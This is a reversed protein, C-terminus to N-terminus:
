GHGREYDPPALSKGSPPFFDWLGHDTASTRQPLVESPVPKPLPYKSAGLKQKPGTRRMASVGRNRNRDRIASAPTSSFNSCQLCSRVMISFSPHLSPTLYTHALDLIPSSRRCRGLGLQWQMIPLGNVRLSLICISFYKIGEFVFLRKPRKKKKKKKQGTRWAPVVHYKAARKNM